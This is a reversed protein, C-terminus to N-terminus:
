RDGDTVDAVSGPIAEGAATRVIDGSNKVGPRAKRLPMRESRAQSPDYITMSTLAQRTAGPLVVEDDDILLADFPAVVLHAGIGLFGGVSLIAFSVRDNASELLLDDIHGIQESDDNIVPRRVLESVPYTSRLEAFAVILVTTEAGPSAQAGSDEPCGASDQDVHAM